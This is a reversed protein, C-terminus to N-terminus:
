GGEGSAYLARLGERYTPYVLAGALHQKLRANAVRKNEAYFSRAMPSLEAAEIPIEDPPPRGLLAAAYAIVDQPPAPEDDTVNLPGAIDQQFAGAISRGIDAVHIRNFVQGPKVIRRATGRGLSALANQGPGYIGALRLIALRAGLGTALTSWAQEAALRARSRASSPQPESAEDVWAGARDGYVGVTSLYVITRIGIASALLPGYHLLVPDGREGPPVSVLLGDAMALARALGARDAFLITQLGAANWHAAAAEQRVTAAALAFADGHAALFQRASYGLGFILLNM